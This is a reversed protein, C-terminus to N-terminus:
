RRPRNRADDRRHPRVLRVVLLVAAVVAGCAALAVLLGIVMFAPVDTM